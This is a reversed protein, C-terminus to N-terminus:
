AMARMIEETKKVLDNRNYDSYNGAVGGAINNRHNTITEFDALEKKVGALVMPIGNKLYGKLRADALRLFSIFRIEMLVSKDKEFGKSTFGFSSGLSPKSYEYEESYFLPFMADVIEVPHSDSVRLLSIKKRSLSLILYEPLRGNAKM